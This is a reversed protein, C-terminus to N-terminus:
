PLTAGRACIPLYILARQTPQPSGTATPVPETLTPPVNTSTPEPPPFTPPPALTATPGPETPEPPPTPFPPPTAPDTPTVGATPTPLVALPGSAWDPEVGAGIPGSVTGGGSPVLFMAWRQPQYRATFVLREGNPSWSPQRLDWSPNQAVTGALNRTLHLKWIDHRTAAGLYPGSVFAIESGDPSWQPEIDDWGPHILLRQPTSSGASDMVYLKGGVSSSTVVFAIRRGEPSWTPDAVQSNSDILRVLPRNGTGDPAVVAIDSSVLLPGNHVLHTYVIQRGDPSWEPDHDDQGQTIQRRTGSALDLVWLTWPGDVSGGVRDVPGASFVVQRRDPSWSPEVEAVDSTDTLQQRGAGSALDLTFLDTVRPLAADPADDYVIPGHRPELTPPPPTPLEGQRVVVVKGTMGQAAHFTCHYPYAGPSLFQANFSAGPVLIWDWHGDDSTTSHVLRGSNPWRVITGVTVTITQPAFFNDDVEVEALQEPGASTVPVVRPGPAALGALPAVLALALLVLLAPRALSRIRALSDGSPTHTLRFFPAM